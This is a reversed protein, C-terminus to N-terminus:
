KKKTPDKKKGLKLKACAESNKTILELTNKNIEFDNKKVMKIM